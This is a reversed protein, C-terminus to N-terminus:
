ILGVKKKVTKLVSNAIPRIKEAGEILLQEINDPDEMLLRYKSQIPMLHETIVESLEQKLAIYGKGSFRAEIAERKEGTFLEYVVLLNNIGPRNEDFRIEQMSDTTAKMIKSRITEPPDLLNIAHRPDKESKSMKKLPDDLGMIRAGKEPIVPEPIKFTRGYIHNFRQAVQRTFELHQKQDEGVPVLDTEYLLIDAAMLLPYNFM